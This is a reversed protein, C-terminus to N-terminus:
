SLHSYHKDIVWDIAAMLNCNNDQSNAFPHPSSFQRIDNDFYKGSADKFKASFAADFLIQAGISLDNGAVGFGEKVMKSALLSGPNVAVNVQTADFLNSTAAVWMTLALKSQAYAQMDDGLVTLGKLADLNVPAQAASSLNVVRGQPSLISLLERTIVVPAITNVVFRADLGSPTIPTPIKLVGANNIIVDLSQCNKKIGKVLTFIDDFISLDALFSTIEVNPFTQQLYELTKHMKQASRGHLILADRNAAFLKATEFGIGDTAGTILVTKM